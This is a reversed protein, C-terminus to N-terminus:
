YNFLSRLYKDAEEGSYRKENPFNKEYDLCENLDKLDQLKDKGNLVSSIFKDKSIGTNKELDNFFLETQPELNLNAIM